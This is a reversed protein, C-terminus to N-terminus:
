ITNKGLDCYTCHLKPLNSILMRVIAAEPHQGAKQRM